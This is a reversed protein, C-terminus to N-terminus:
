LNTGVTYGSSLAFGSSLAINVNPCNEPPNDGIRVYCWKPTVESYGTM